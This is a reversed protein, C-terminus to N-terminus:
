EEQSIESLMEAEFRDTTPRWSQVGYKWLYWLDLFIQPWNNTSKKQIENEAFTKIVSFLSRKNM